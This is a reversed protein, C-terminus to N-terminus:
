YNICKSLEEYYARKTAPFLAARKKGEIGMQTRLESDMYINRLAKALNKVFYRNKEVFIANVPSLVEVLGGVRTAVVPVGMTMAELAVVGFVEEVQSPIVVCDSVSYFKYLETNNVYGTFIVKDEIGKLKQKLYQIYKDTGKNELIDGGVILLKLNHFQDIAQFADILKDIGKEPVLRGVFTFVIDKSSIGLNRKMEEKQSLSLNKFNSSVIGNYVVNIKSGYNENIKMMKKKLFNSAVLIKDATNLIYVMKKRTKAPDGCDFDNHLHFILKEKNIKSILESYLNMNNEVLVIDYYNKKFKKVFQNRVYSKTNNKFIYKYLRNKIGYICRIKFSPKPIRILRTQKYNYSNLFSNDITYLDIDYKKTIENYEIFYQILQEIAGGNVAPVPLFGPTFIALKMDKVKEKYYDM